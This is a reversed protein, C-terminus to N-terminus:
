PTICLLFKSESLTSTQTDSSESFETMETEDKAVNVQWDCVAILFFRFALVIITLLYFLTYM